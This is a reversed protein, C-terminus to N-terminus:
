FDIGLRAFDPRNSSRGKKRGPENVRAFEPARSMSGVKGSISLDFIKKRVRKIPSLALTTLAHQNLIM